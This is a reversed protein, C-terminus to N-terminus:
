LDNQRFIKADLSKMLTIENLRKAIDKVSNIVIKDNDLKIPHKRFIHYWQLIDVDRYYPHCPYNIVYNEYDSTMWM